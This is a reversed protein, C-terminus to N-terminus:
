NALSLAFPSHRWVRRGHCAGRLHTTQQAPGPESERGHVHVCHHALVAVREHDHVLQLPHTLRTSRDPAALPGGGLWGEVEVLFRCCRPGHAAVCEEGGGRGVVVGGGHEFFFSRLATGAFVVAVVALTQTPIAPLPRRGVKVLQGYRCSKLHHVHNAPSRVARLLFRVASASGGARQVLDTDGLGRTGTSTDHRHLFLSCLRISNSSAFVFLCCSPPPPQKIEKQAGCRCYECRM